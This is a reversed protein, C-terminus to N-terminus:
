GPAKGDPSGNCPSPLRACGVPPSARDNAAVQMRSPSPTQTPTNGLSLERISASLTPMKSCAQAARPGACAPVPPPCSSFCRHHSGPLPDQTGDTVLLRVPDREVNTQVVGDDLSELGFGTPAIPVMFGVELVVQAAHANAKRGSGLVHGPRVPHRVGRGLGDGFTGGLGGTKALLSQGSVAPIHAAYELLGLEPQAVNLCQGQGVVVRAAHSRNEVADGLVLHHQIPRIGAGPHVDHVDAVIQPSLARQDHTRLLVAPPIPWSVLLDNRVQSGDVRIHQDGKVATAM